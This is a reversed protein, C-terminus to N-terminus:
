AQKEPKAFRPVNKANVNYVSAKLILMFKILAKEKKKKKKKLDPNSPLNNIIGWKVRM